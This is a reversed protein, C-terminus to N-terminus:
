VSLGEPKFNFVEQFSFMLLIVAESYYVTLDYPDLVQTGRNLISVYPGIGDVDFFVIPFELGFEVKAINMVIFIYELPSATGTMLCEAPDRAGSGTSVVVRELVWPIIEPISEIESFDGYYLTHGSIMESYVENQLKSDNPWIFSCGVMSVLLVIVIFKM